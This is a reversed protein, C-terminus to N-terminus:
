HKNSKELAVRVNKYAPTGSKPDVSTSVLLNAEPYYMAASGLAIDYAAVRIGCMEGVSSRVTIREGDHLGLREIDGANLLIVDRASQNRYRDNEEYVVTNFQGESRITMLRLENPLLDDKPSDVSIFRARGDPFPFVPEHRVRGDVHFEEKTRGIKAIQEYGPVVKAMVERIADHNRLARFDIPGNEPLLRAGISTIIEVEAKLEGGPPLMGGDSLRVFSFMSEQTTAQMEEDRVCTPLIFVEGGMREPTVNVHGQNLKTNIHIATGIKGLSKAAYALDPNAAYFNGGLFLAADIRGAAAAHISGISDLGKGEPMKLGYLDEMAKLFGAKLEPAFGVSGIGQVNSHGRIPMLGANKRGVMGRALALNAIAQVNDVGHEHHTIGMAWMFVANRAAGYMRAVQIIAAEDIGCGASLDALSEGELERVLDDFGNTHDRIFEEDVMNEAIVVKLIGKLLAIDGGIRPQLYLDNITSGFILSGARSPINFRDLGTERLPNVIVVKGGHDRIHSLTTILRPHNSAPNAGVLLVFDASEVDELTVTATSSGISQGLGVGSAQHCYFSCNNVNNTGYVRALWQLLFAAENSSRGSSYFFTRDPNTARLAAAISDLAKDWSLRRYHTDGHRLVVPYSLRGLHELERPSLKALEAVPYNEFFDGAIPPQMDAAMAQVSKKCFEPFHGLENRMGGSQGGMGYACTKCANRSSMRKWFRRPGGEAEFSKRVTYAVAAWGGGSRVKKM